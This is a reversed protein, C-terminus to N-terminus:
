AHEDGEVVLRYAVPYLKLRAQERLERLHLGPMEIPEGHADALILAYVEPRTDILGWVDAELVLPAIDLCHDKPWYYRVINGSATRREWPFRDGNTKAIWSGDAHFFRGDGDKRFGHAAAYREIISPSSPKQPPRPRDVAAGGAEDEDDTEDAPEGMAEPPTGGEASGAGATDAAMTTPVNSGAAESDENPASTVDPALVDEPAEAGPALDAAALKFNEELYARVDDPSREFSYDLAAKIEPRGFAKAIEEPVRKALKAKPLENVYLGRDLWLVDARRPTGAPTGDIYPIIELGPARQWRTSALQQALARVRDTEPETDLEIRCLETGLATLWAREEPEGQVLPDRHFRDEVRTALTPLESFPLAGTVEVPLRQLDATKQKVWEHLHSWPILSQMTLAYSIGDTAAWEGALNIWHGCEEWVRVPHRVLLARVRPLDGPSLKQGSPLEKLWQIALDATPREAVGLKRWLTLDAVSERIIAAGPVDEEDSSLFVSSVTAWAGKDTLILRESRFADKIKQLDETSCTDVMQDLRRYWREVEHIPPKESMALARLCDLLRDPGTPASRVGLLDLLPQTAERDLSGHIFAEVDILSETEPTRRLLDGPKQCFGRTDRLCPVDRLRLIWSPLLPEAIISRTNGTTAVHIAGASRAGSWYSEAQAVIREAIAAWIHGDSKALESWHRWCGEDFDWDIFVFHNTKFQYAPAHLTGRKRLEAEIKTRSYVDTRKEILPPLSLLASRGTTVWKMWEERTCSGFVRTYESHLLISERKPEPVLEEVRGDEDFLVHDKPARLHRDRTAYRFNEGATAGLKAAVHALQVCEAISVSEKAFFEAAVRDIVRSIDASDELGIKKLVAHAANVSKLAGADAPEEAARRQDAIFRPWAHHLVVLHGALFQWDDESELLKKEGLRVVEVAAYLVDKGEVPVIRLAAPPFASWYATIEPAVYAWLNLLRHWTEPRPLHRGQLTALLKPKDIEEVARWNLLKQRNAAAVHRSFAPRGSEDFLAAAQRPSWVELIPEPLAVSQGSAVLSGDDTLLFRQGGISEAFSEEVITSSVGELSNDERNVDPFLGYARAREADPTNDTQNLWGLMSAAALQGARRLLWRNTPSTEPDKIKLRAPDQIFPANCAFPLATEVGTPLVVFLRGKAGLVIEVKSPPFDAAEEVALMREQRIEALAEDPFPEAKSRLLLFAPGQEDGLAMWESEPVPGAGVSRWHVDADGVRMRRIHKFFLLSLPSQRWEELNKEVERRRHEDKIVVHIRTKGDSRTGRESWRPETFRRRDFCVALTPTFVEVCDGLSFTSKFGIGRFGITHLDRKNSYGFRCLSAFHEEVFDEGDHEFLFAGNEIRVSAERAGADDANQLLESLVHRPSQVQKFLQHWPGALDPDRELQDWRTAAKQRIPEFFAPSESM